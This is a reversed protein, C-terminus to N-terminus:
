KELEGTSLVREGVYGEARDEATVAQLDRPLLLRKM